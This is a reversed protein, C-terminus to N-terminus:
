VSESPASVLPYERDDVEIKRLFEMPAISRALRRLLDLADLDLEVGVQLELKIVVRRAGRFVGTRLATNRIIKSITDPAAITLTIELGQVRDLSARLEPQVDVWSAADWRQRYPTPNVAVTLVPATARPHALLPEIISGLTQTLHRLETNASSLPLLLTIDRLSPLSHPRSMLYRAITPVTRLTDIDAPPVSITLELLGPLRALFEMIEREPLLPLDIFAVSTLGSAASAILRLVASWIRLEGRNQLLLSPLLSKDNSHPFVFDIHDLPPDFLAVRLAALMDRRDTRMTIKISRNDSVLGNALLLTPTCYFATPSM